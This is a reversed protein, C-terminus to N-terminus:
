MTLREAAAPPLEISITTGRGLPSELALKGGLV